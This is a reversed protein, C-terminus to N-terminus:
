VPMGGAGVPAAKAHRQMEIKSRNSLWHVKLAFFTGSMCEQSM